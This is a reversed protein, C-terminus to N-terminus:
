PAFIEEARDIWAGRDLKRAAARPITGEAAGPGEIAAGIALDVRLVDDLIKARDLLRPAKDDVIDGENMGLVAHRDALCDGCAADLLAIIEFRASVNQKSVLLDEAEPLFQAEFE